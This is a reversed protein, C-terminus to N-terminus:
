LWSSPGSAPNAGTPPTQSIEKTRASLAANSTLRACSRARLAKRAAPIIRRAAGQIAPTVSVPWAQVLGAPSGSLTAAMCPLTSCFRLHSGACSLACNANYRSMLKLASGASRITQGSVATGTSLSCAM